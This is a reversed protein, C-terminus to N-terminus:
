IGILVANSWTYDFKPNKKLNFKLKNNALKYVSSISKKLNLCFNYKYKYTIMESFRFNKEILKSNKSQIRIKWIYNYINIVDYSEM